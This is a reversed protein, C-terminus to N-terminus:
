VLRKPWMRLSKPESLSAHRANRSLNQRMAFRESLSVIGRNSASHASSVASALADVPAASVTRESASSHSLCSPARAGFHAARQVYACRVSSMWEVCRASAIWEARQWMM